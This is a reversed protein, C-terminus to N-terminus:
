VVFLKQYEWFKKADASFRELLTGPRHDQFIYWAIMDRFGQDRLALQNCFQNVFETEYDM